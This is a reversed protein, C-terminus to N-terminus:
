DLKGRQFLFSALSSSENSRKARQDSHAIVFEAAEVMKDPEPLERYASMLYGYVKVRFADDPALRLAAELPERSAAFKRDNFLPAAARMAEDATKYDAAGVSPLGAAWAFALILASSLSPWSTFCHRM